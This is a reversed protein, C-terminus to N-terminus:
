WICCPARRKTLIRFTLTVATGCLPGAQPESLHLWLLISFILARLALSRPHCCLARLSPPANWEVETGAPACRPFQTQKLPGSSLLFM